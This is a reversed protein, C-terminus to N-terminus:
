TLNLAYRLAIHSMLICRQSHMVPHANTHMAHELQRGPLRAATLAWESWPVYTTAACPTPNTSPGGAFFPPPAADVDRNYPSSDWM